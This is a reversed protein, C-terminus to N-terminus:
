MYELGREYFNLYTARIARIEGIAIEIRMWKGNYPKISM